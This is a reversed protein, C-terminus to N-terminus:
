RERTLIMPDSRSEKITSLMGTGNVPHFPKAQTRTNSGFGLKV